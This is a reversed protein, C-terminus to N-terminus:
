RRRNDGTRVDFLKVTDPANLTLHMIKDPNRNHFVGIFENLLSGFLYDFRFNDIGAAPLPTNRSNGLRNEKYKDDRGM